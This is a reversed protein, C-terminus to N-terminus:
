MKVDKKLVDLIHYCVAHDKCEGIIQKAYEKVENSANRPASSHQFIELMTIDNLGDGYVAIENEQINLKQALRQISVGKNVSIDTLEFFDEQFPANVIKDSNEHLFTEFECKM